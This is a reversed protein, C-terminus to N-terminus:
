KSPTENIPPNLYESIESASKHLLEHYKEWNIKGKNFMDTIVDVPHMQQKGNKEKWEEVKIQEPSLTIDFETNKVDSSNLLEKPLASITSVYTDFAKESQRMFENFAKLGKSEEINLPKFQHSEIEGSM